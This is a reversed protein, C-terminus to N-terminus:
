RACIMEIEVRANKPLAAVAFCSRAPPADPFFEAYAANVEAFDAIDALFITTKVARALETGAARAIAAANKLCHKTQEGISGACLEGTAMDIPLQGSIFVLGGAEIAQSYPGIAGPADTTAIVKREM